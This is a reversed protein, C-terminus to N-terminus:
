GSFVPSVTWKELQLFSSFLDSLLLADVFGSVMYLGQMKKFNAKFDNIICSM